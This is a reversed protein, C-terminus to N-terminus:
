PQVTIYLGDFELKRSIEKERKFMVLPVKLQYYAILKAVSLLSHLSAIVVLLDEINEPIWEAFILIEDGDDGNEFIEEDSVADQMVNGDNCDDASCYEQGSEETADGSSPSDWKYSLLVVNMVFSVLLAGAKFNYFNRAFFAM